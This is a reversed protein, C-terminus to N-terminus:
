GGRAQLSERILTWDCGCVTLNYGWQAATREKEVSEAFYIGAGMGRGRAIRAVETAAQRFLEHSHDGLCDLSATLDYPGVLVGDVGDVQLLSESRDVGLVSEIQLILAVDGCHSRSAIRMSEDLPQDRMADHARQGQIPRLKAAAAVERVQDVTEVYPVVVGVAGDDFAARVLSGDPRLVRVLPTIQAARYAACMWAVQERSFCHHECDIFVFDVCGRLQRPWHPAVSTLQFGRLSRGRRFQQRFSDSTM